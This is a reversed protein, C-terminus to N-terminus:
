KHEILEPQRRRLRDLWCRLVGSCEAFKGLTNFLAYEVAAGFDAGCRRAYRIAGRAPYLYAILMLMSYGDTPYAALVITAPWVAGWFLARRVTSVCYREPSRGHRHAGEAAAYGGRKSRQWWQRMRTMGLDHTMMPADLCRLRWGARRLRLCMEPEEGAILDSAYGNVAQFATVRILAIGGCALIEGPTTRWEIDALRQFVSSQPDRERGQGVVVALSDDGALAASGVRLWHADIECDGDVFQLMELDPQRETLLEAGANRARAATFPLSPNLRHVEYGLSEALEPSGDTSGSDVYISDDCCATLSRLSTELRRGENRGIIVCGILPTRVETSSRASSADSM